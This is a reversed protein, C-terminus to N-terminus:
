IKARRRERLMRRQEVRDFKRQAKDHKNLLRQSHRAIVSELKACNSRSGISAIKTQIRKGYDRAIEAHVLEHKKIEAFLNDWSLKAFKNARRYNAWRPLHIIVDVDVTAKDIHCRGNKELFKVEPLMKISAVGLTAQHDGVGKIPSRKQFDRFIELSTRGRVKFYAFRQEYKVGKSAVDAQTPSLGTGLLGLFVVSIVSQKFM